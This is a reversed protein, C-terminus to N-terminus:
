YREDPAQDDGEIEFTIDGLITSMDDIEEPEVKFFADKEHTITIFWPRGDQRIVSIDELSNKDNNMVLEFGEELFCLMSENCLKYKFLEVTDSGILMTGPWCQVLKKEVLWLSLKELVKQEIESLPRRAVFMFYKGYEVSARFIREISQKSWQINPTVIKM